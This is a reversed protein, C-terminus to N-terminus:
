LYRESKKFFKIKFFLKLENSWVKYTVLLSPGSSLCSVNTASKLKTVVHSKLIFNYM